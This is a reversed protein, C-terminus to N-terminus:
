LKNVLKNIKSYHKKIINQKRFNAAYQALKDLVDILGEKTPNSYDVNVDDFAKKVVFEAEMNKFKKREEKSKWEAFEDMTNLVEKHALTFCRFIADRVMIPTIKKSLDIGYIKGAM